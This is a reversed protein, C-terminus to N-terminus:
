IFQKCTTHLKSNYVHLVRTTCTCNQATSSKNRVLIMSSPSEPKIIISLFYDNQAAFNGFRENKWMEPLSGRTLLYTNIM